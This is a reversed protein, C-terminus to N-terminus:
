FSMQSDKEGPIIPVDALNMKGQLTLFLFHWMSTQQNSIFSKGNFQTMQKQIAIYILDNQLHLGQLWVGLSLSLATQAQDWRPLYSSKIALM